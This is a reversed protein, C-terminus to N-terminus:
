KSKQKYQPNVMPLECGSDRLHQLLMKKLRAVVEPHAGAINRTEGIDAELDFLENPRGGYPSLEKEWYIIYKYRGFRVASLPPNTTYYHPKHWFVAKRKLSESGTFVPVLSVGDLHQKPLLPLGAMELCTPYYDPTIVVEDSVMGPTAKGPWRVILPVRHSGEYQGGKQGRLPAMSTLKYPEKCIVADVGGNDSTFVVVTNEAIGLADLEALLRGVERDLEEVMAVYHPSYEKKQEDTLLREYKELAEQTCQVQVHVANHPAYLFFPKGQEKSDRMFNISLDTITTMRKPDEPVVAPPTIWMDCHPEDHVDFGLATLDENGS